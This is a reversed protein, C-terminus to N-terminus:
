QAHKLVESSREHPLEHLHVDPLSGTGHIRTKAKGDQAEFALEEGKVLGFRLAPDRVALHLAQLCAHEARGVLREQLEVPPLCVPKQLERRLQELAVAVLDLVRPM